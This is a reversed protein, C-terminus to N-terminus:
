EPEDAVRRIDIVEEHGFQAATDLYLQLQVATDKIQDEIALLEALNECAFEFGMMLKGVTLTQNELSRWLANVAGGTAPEKEHQALVESALNCRDVLTMEDNSLEARVYLLFRTTGVWGPKQNRMLVLKM